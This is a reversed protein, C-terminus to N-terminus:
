CAAVQMVVPNPACVSPRGTQNLLTRLRRDDDVRADFQVSQLPLSGSDDPLTYLGGTVPDFGFAATQDTPKTLTVGSSRPVSVTRLETTLNVTCAAGAGLTCDCLAASDVPATYLTYCTQSGASGTYVNVRVPRARAVAESRAFQMDTVFQANVGRLRQMIIMSRLSPAALAALVGLVALVVTLEVLTLGGASHRARQRM